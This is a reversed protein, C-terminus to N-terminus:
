VRNAIRSLWLYNSDDILSRSGDLCPIVWREAEKSQGNFAIVTRIGNVVEEAVSGAEASAENEQTIFRKAFFSMAAIVLLMGPLIGLMVLSLKWSYSFAVAMGGIFQVFFTITIATKDGIGDKIRDIGDSLKTTLAGAKNKDFWSIEQHMISRFLKLRIKYVQKECLVNWCSM